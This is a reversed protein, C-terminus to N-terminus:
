LGPCLSTLFSPFKQLFVPHPPLWCHHGAGRCLSCCRRASLYVKGWRHARGQLTGRDWRWGGLSRGSAPVSQSPSPQSRGSDTQTHAPHRPGHGLLSALAPLLGTHLSLGLKAELGPNQGLSQWCTHGPSSYADELHGSKGMLLITITDGQPYRPFSIFRPRSIRTVPSLPQQANLLHQKRNRPRPIRMQLISNQDCSGLSGGM